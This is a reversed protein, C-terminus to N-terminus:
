LTKWTIARKNSRPETGPRTGAGRTLLHGRDVGARLQELLYDADIDTGIPNDAFDASNFYEATRQATPFNETQFELRIGEPDEYYLSTTPGHNISWVPTIGVTKLREYTLLLKEISTFTFALHDIGYTKRRLRALPFVHRVPPPLKVLALRHSEHDWTLFAIQNDEHVVRAGFVKGYWDIMEACRATKVVWHAIFDPVLRDPLRDLDPASTTADPNGPDSPQLPSPTASM